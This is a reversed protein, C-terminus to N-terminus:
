RHFPELVEGIRGGDILDVLEDALVRCRDVVDKWLGIREDTGLRVFDNRDPVKGGPLAAVFADSPAIMVVEDLAESRPRRWPLGKDFWGPVIRDFFHPFLVLGPRRRFEFDFHYDVIGGDFLTGPLRALGRVGEMVLPISGSALLAKPLADAELPVEVTPLDDFRIGGHEPRFLVREFSRGLRGRSLGNRLAALGLQLRFALGEDRGRDRRM